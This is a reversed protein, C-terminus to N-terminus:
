LNTKENRNRKRSFYAKLKERQKQPLFKIIWGAFISEEGIILIGLILFVVGPFIPLILGLIGLFIFFVGIIRLFRHLLIKTHNLKDM